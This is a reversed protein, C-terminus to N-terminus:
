SQRKRSSCNTRGNHNIGKKFIDVFIITLLILITFINM